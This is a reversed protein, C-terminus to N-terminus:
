NGNGFVKEKNYKRGDKSLAWLLVGVMFMAALPDTAIIHYYGPKPIGTFLAAAIGWLGGVYAAYHMVLGIRPLWKDNWSSLRRNWSKLRGVREGDRVTM